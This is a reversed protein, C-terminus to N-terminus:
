YKYDRKIRNIRHQSFDHIKNCKSIRYKIAKNVKKVKHFNNLEM